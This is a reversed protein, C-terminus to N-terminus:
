IAKIGASPGIRGRVLISGSIAVFRTGPWREGHCLTRGGREGWCDAGDLDMRRRGKVGGRGKGGIGEFDEAVGEEEGFAAVFADFEELVSGTKDEEYGGGGRFSSKLWKNRLHTHRSFYELQSM